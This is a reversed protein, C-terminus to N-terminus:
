LVILGPASLNRSAISVEFAKWWDEPDARMLPEVTAMYGANSVLVDWSGIEHAALTVSTLDAVDTLLVHISVDPNTQQIAQKAEELIHQRRGLIFITAARADAFAEVLARGIGAGGGTIVVRTGKFCLEPRVRPDISPYTEDHWTKTMSPTSAM